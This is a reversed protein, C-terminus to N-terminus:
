TDDSITEWDDKKFVPLGVQRRLENFGRKSLAICIDLRLTQWPNNVVWEMPDIRDLIDNGTYPENRYRHQLFLPLEDVRCGALRSLCTPTWPMFRAWVSARAGTLHCKVHKAGSGDTSGWRRGFLIAEIPWIAYEAFPYHRAHKVDLINGSYEHSWDFGHKQGPPAGQRHGEFELRAVAELLTEVNDEVRSRYWRFVKDKEAEFEKLAQSSVFQALNYRAFWKADRKLNEVTGFEVPELGLLKSRRRQLHTTNNWSGPLEPLGEHQLYNLYEEPVDEAYREELWQNKRTPERPWQGEEVLQETRVDSVQLRPFELQGDLKAPLHEAASTLAEPIAIMEGTYSQAPLQRAERWYREYILALVMTLWLIQAPELDVLKGLIIAEQNYRVLGEQKPIHVSKARFEYEMLQYPFHYQFVRREMHRDPRRTMHKQLPHAWEDKDTLVYISGGNRIGFVFYSFEAQPDRILSLIVGSPLRTMAKIMSNVNWFQFVSDAYKIDAGDADGYLFQHAQLKEVAQLADRRLYALEYPTEFLEDTEALGYHRAGQKLWQVFDDMPKSIAPTELTAVLRRMRSITEDVKEPEELIERAEFTVEEAMRQVFARLLMAATLGTPDLTQAENFQEYTRSIHMEGFGHRTKAEPDVGTLEVWQQIAKNLAKHLNPDIQPVQFTM